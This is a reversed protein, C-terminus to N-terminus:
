SLVSYDNMMLESLDGLYSNMRSNSMNYVSYLMLLREDLRVLPFMRTSSNMYEAKAKEVAAISSSSVDEVDIRQVYTRVVETM